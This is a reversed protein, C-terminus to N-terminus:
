RLSDLLGPAAKRVGATFPMEVGRKKWQRVVNACFMLRSLVGSRSALDDAFETEIRAAVEPVGLSFGWLTAADYGRPARGWSEWDLVVCGPATLNGWHCDGHATTWEPVTLDVGAVEDPFVETIRGVLHGGDMARRTTDAAALAALSARLTEWWSASLTPAEAISGPGSVAHDTVLEFEDARWIVGRREDPWRLSRFLAPMSVGTLASAAEPGTWADSMVGPRRFQFRVWRGGDSVM